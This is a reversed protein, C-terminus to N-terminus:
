IRWNVSSLDCSSPMGFDNRILEMIRRREQMVEREKQDLDQIRIKDSDSCYVQSMLKNKEENIEDVLIKTKYSIDNRQAEPNLISDKGYDPINVDIKSDSELPSKQSNASPFSALGLRSSIQGAFFAIRNIISLM